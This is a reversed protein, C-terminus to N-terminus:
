DGDADQFYRLLVYSTVPDGYKIDISGEETIPSKAIFTVTYNNIVYSLDLNTSIAVSKPEGATPDISAEFSFGTQEEAQVTKDTAIKERAIEVDYNTTFSVVVDHTEANSEQDEANQDASLVNVQSDYKYQTTDIPASESVNGSLANFIDAFIGEGTNSAFATVSVLLTCLLVAAVIIVGTLLGKRRLLNTQALNGKTEM